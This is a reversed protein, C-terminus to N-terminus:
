LVFTGVGDVGQMGRRPKPSPIYQAFPPSRYSATFAWGEDEATCGPTMSLRHSVAASGSTACYSFLAERILRLVLRQMPLNLPLVAEGNTALPSMKNCHTTQTVAGM